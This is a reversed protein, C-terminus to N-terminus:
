RRCQEVVERQYKREDEMIEWFDDFYKVADERDDDELLDFGMYLDTIAQRRETFFPAWHAYDQVQPYCIGWFIRQRVNRIGLRPDPTAYRADVAGSFDFDYPVTLFRNEETHVLKMNHFETSSWDTNGILLQFLSMMTAYEGNSLGPNLTGVEELVGRNRAAMQEDSEIIFGFKTRTDYDGEIDEFTIEVLRVRLSVPTLLQYTRYVLYEYFVYDQYSDRGDHCPSVLKLKDQGEFVSGEVESTAFNLRLPPFNCNRKNRRFNGRTRVQVPLSVEVGDTGALLVRGEVEEEDSREDRLWDIDTHLTLKLPEDSAFLPAAEAQEAAAAFEEATPHEHEQASLGGSVAIL